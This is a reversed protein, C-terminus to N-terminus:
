MKMGNMDHGGSESAGIAQVDFDVTIAGAHEFELTVKPKEGKVLPKKLNVFMIHLGGPKFQVTGGAPVALGDKLERMEMVGNATKMEHMQLLAFDSSGGLFKDAAGHNHITLYGAGVSAGKPTARSWANTIMIDGSMADGALTPAAVLAFVAALALKRLM